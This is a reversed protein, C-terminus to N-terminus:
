RRDLLVRENKANRIRVVLAAGIGPPLSEQLKSPLFSITIMTGPKLEEESRKKTWGDRLYVSPSAMEGSWHTVNGKEDTTDFFLAVHPNKFDFGTVTAKTTTLDGNTYNIPTGHHALIPSAVLCATVAFAILRSM